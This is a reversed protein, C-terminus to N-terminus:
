LELRGPRAPPKRSKEATNRRPHTQEAMAEGLGNNKQV